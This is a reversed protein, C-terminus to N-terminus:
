FLGFLGSAEGELLVVRVCRVMRDDDILVISGSLGLKVEKNEERAFVEM